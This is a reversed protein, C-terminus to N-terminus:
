RDGSDRSVADIVYEVLLRDPMGTVEGYEGGFVTLVIGFDPV